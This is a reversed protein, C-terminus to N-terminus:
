RGAEVDRIVAATSPSEQRSLALLVIPPLVGVIGILMLSSTSLSSATLL